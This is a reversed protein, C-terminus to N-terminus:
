VDEKLTPHKFMSRGDTTQVICDQHSRWACRGTHTPLWFGWDRRVPGTTFLTLTYPVGEPLVLRHATEAKRHIVDGKGRTKMARRSITQGPTQEEIELYGGSLIVSQNDWPHDHLPREPDSAVQLHLYANAGFRNRPILHWRYLYPEGDPAIILDPERTSGLISWVLTRDEPTLIDYASM